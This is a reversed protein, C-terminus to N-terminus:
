VASVEVANEYFGAEGQVTLVGLEDIRGLKEDLLRWAFPVDPILSDDVDFAVAHFRFIQQRLVTAGNQVFEIHAMELPRDDGVVVVDATVSKTVVGDPTNQVATVLVSGQYSGPRSRAVFTGDEAFSGARADVASWSLQVDPLVQGNRDYATAKLTASDGADIVVPNPDINVSTFVPAVRVIPATIEVSARVTLKTEPTAVRAVFTKENVPTATAPRSCATAVFALALSAVALASLLARTRNESM